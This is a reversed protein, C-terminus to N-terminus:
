VLTVKLKHNNLSAPKEGKALALFEDIKLIYFGVLDRGFFACIESSKGDFFEFAKENDVLLFDAGSDYADFIIESLIGM